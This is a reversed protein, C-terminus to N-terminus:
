EYLLYLSERQPAWPKGSALLPDSSTFRGQTSSYYRALFYDLGTENDREKLTFQFRVGDLQNYGQSTTRGGTGAFLEEGFPLYDHRSVGGLYGGKDVIMRPTGLQDPVLWRVDGDNTATVLLQGGRYGYERSLPTPGAGGVYEALLEGDMGYVQWYEQGFVRRVRDGDADYFYFSYDVSGDGAMIMRNEADYTREGFSTYTDNILNGAADYNMKTHNPDVPAYLRNTSADVIFQKTSTVTWTGTSIRNGYQDYVFQQTVSPIPPFIPTIEPHQMQRSKAGVSSTGISAAYENVSSIRNLSDYAYDDRTVDWGSIVEDHPIWTETCLVNGNNDTGGNYGSANGRYYIAIYGRDAGAM